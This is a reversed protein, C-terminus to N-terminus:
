YGCILGTITPSGSSVTFTACSLRAYPAPNGGTIATYSSATNTIASGISTFTVNDLSVQLSVSLASLTGGALNLQVGWTSLAGPYAIVTGTQATTISNLSMGGGSGFSQVPASHNPIAVSGM